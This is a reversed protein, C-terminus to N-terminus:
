GEYLFIRDGENASFRGGHIAHKNHFSFTRFKCTAALESHIHQYLQRSNLKKM